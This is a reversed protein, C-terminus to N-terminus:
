PGTPTIQALLIAWDDAQPVLVLTMRHNWPREFNPFFVNKWQIIAVLMDSTEALTEEIVYTANKKAYPAFLAALHKAMEDRNWRRGLADIYQANPAFFNLPASAGFGKLAALFGDLTAIAAGSPRGPETARGASLNEFAQDASSTPREPHPLKALRQRIAAARLGRAHLIKGALSDEVHVLGLLLHETGIHRHALRDAEEAAANLVKKCKPSFPVECSTSYRKGLTTHKEIENRIAEKASPEALFRHMLPPDERFLALLIHEPEIYDSGFQGAEYRAFFIVRRAKETYREFM